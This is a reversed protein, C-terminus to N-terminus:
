LLNRTSPAPTRRSPARDDLAGKRNPGTLIACLAPNDMVRDAFRTSSFSGYEFERKHLIVFWAEVPRTVLCPHTFVFRFRGGQRKNGHVDADM